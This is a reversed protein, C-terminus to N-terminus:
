CRGAVVDDRGTQSLYMVELHSSPGISPNAARFVMKPNLPEATAREMHAGAMSCGRMAWIGVSLM